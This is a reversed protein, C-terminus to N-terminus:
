NWGRALEDITTMDKEVEGWNGDFLKEADKRRAPEAGALIAQRGKNQTQNLDRQLERAAELSPFRLEFTATQSQRINASQLYVMTSTSVMLTLVVGFGLGLKKGLTIRMKRTERLTANSLFM